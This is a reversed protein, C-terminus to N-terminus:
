SVMNRPVEYGYRGGKWDMPGKPVDLDQGDFDLGELLFERAEIEEFIRDPSRDVLVEPFNEYAQAMSFADIVDDHELQPYALLQRILPATHGRAFFCRRARLVPELNDIQSEKKTLGRPALKPDRTIRKRDMRPDFSVVRVVHGGDMLKEQLLPAQIDANEVAVLQPPYQRALFM